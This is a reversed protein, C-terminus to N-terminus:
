ALTTHSIRVASGVHDMCLLCFVAVIVGVDVDEGVCIVVVPMMAVLCLAFLRHECVVRLCQWEFNIVGGLCLRCWGADCGDCGCRM